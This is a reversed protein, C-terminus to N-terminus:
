DEGLDNIIKDISLLSRLGGQEIEEPLIFSYKGMINIHNYGLPSLRQIDFDYSPQGSKKIANLVIEM